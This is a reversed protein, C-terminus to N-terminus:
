LGPLDFCFRWAGFVRVEYQNARQETPEVGTGSRALRIRIFHQSWELGAEWARSVPGCVGVAYHWGRGDVIDTTWSGPPWPGGTTDEDVEAHGSYAGYGLRARVPFYRLEIGGALMNMRLLVEPLIYPGHNDFLVGPGIHGVQGYGFASFSGFCRGLGARLYGADQECGGQVNYGFQELDDEHFSHQIGGIALAAEVFVSWCHQARVFDLSGRWSDLDNRDEDPSGSESAPRRVLRLGCDTYRVSADAFVCADARCGLASSYFSGGGVPQSVITDGTEPDVSVIGDDHITWEFVNGATDFLGWANPARTAVPHLSDGSNGAYWAHFSIATLSDEGWFYPTYTGARSAYEWYRTTPVRYEWEPDMAELAEAFALCDDLSICCMPYDPGIQEVGESELLDEVGEGMVLSWMGQTVETTMVDFARVRVSDGELLLGGFGDEMRGLEFTDAPLEVYEMGPLPGPVALSVAPALALGLLAVFVGPGPLAEPSVM